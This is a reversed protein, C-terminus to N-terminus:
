LYKSFFILLASCAHYTVFIVTTFITISFFWLDGATGNINIIERDLSFYTLVFIIVSHIAGQIVALFFKQLTFAKGDVGEAYLLPYSKRVNTLEVIQLMKKGEANEYVKKKYYVDQDFCARVVVPLLTFITNYLSIYWSDYLNQSSFASIFAFYFLPLTFVMNKYFFYLVMEAIRIYCWRGHVFLLRWLAKFEPIAFDAAQVARMGEQGYLGVGIHAAQIMNVDNAGDGIALTIKQLGNKILRVVEAKQKPNVRCCVVSECNRSIEFFEKKLDANEFIVAIVHFFLYTKIEKCNTVSLKEKLLFPKLCM